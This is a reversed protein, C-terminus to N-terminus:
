GRALEIAALPGLIASAEAHKSAALAARELERAFSEADDSALEVRTVAAPEALPREFRVPTNLELVLDTRNRAPLLATTGDVRVQRDGRQARGEVTVLRVAGLPIRVRHLAGARVVLTGGHVAHPWARPGLAWGWLWLLAYAHLVASAVRVVVWGEPLLLHVPVAEALIAPTFAAALALREGGGRDYRFARPVRGRRGIVVRPLTLLVDLEARLFARARPHMILDRLAEGREGKVRLAAVVVAAFLAVRVAVVAAGTALNGTYLLVAFVPLTVASSWRRVRRVRPQMLFDLFRDFLRM